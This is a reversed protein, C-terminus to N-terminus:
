NGKSFLQEMIEDYDQAEQPQNHINVFDRGKSRNRGPQANLLEKAQELTKVGDAAWVTAIKEVYNRGIKHDNHTYVYEILCNIVEGPLQLDVQLYELLKKDAASVPIGNQLNQLYQVPHMQYGGETSAATRRSGICKNRLTEASFTYEAAPSDDNVSEMVYKRMTEVDISFVTALQAILELNEPTRLHDPFSLPSLDRMLANIDFDSKIGSSRYRDIRSFAYEDELNWNENFFAFDFSGTVEMDGEDDLPEGSHLRSTIEFQQQGAKKAYLRSFVDHSLFRQPSLPPQLDFRCSSNKESFYSRLLRFQELTKIATTLEDITSDTLLCLRQLTMGEDSIGAEGALLLYLALARSGILPAYLVSLSTMEGSNLGENRVVRYGYGGRYEIM